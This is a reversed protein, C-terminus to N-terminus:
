KRSLNQSVLFYRTGSARTRPVMKWSCDEASEKGGGNLDSTSFGSNSSDGAGTSDVVSQVVSFFRSDRALILYCEKPGAKLIITQKAEEAINTPM